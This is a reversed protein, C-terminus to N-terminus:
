EYDYYFLNKMLGGSQVFRGLENTVALTDNKHDQKFIFLINGAGMTRLPPSLMVTSKGPLVLSIATSDVFKYNLRDVLKKYSSKKIRIIDQTYPFGYPIDQHSDITGEKIKLTLIVPDPNLNRVYTFMLIKCSSFFCLLLMLLLNHMGNIKLQKIISSIMTCPSGTAFIDRPIKDPSIINKKAGPLEQVMWGSHYMYNM